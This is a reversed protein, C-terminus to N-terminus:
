GPLELFVTSGEGKISNLKDYMMLAAPERLTKVPSWFAVKNGQYIKASVTTM